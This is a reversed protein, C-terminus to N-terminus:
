FMRLAGFVLVGISALAISAALAVTLKTGTPIVAPTVVAPTTAPAPAAHRIRAPSPKRVVAVPSTEPSVQLALDTELAPRTRLSPAPGVPRPLTRTARRPSPGNVPLDDWNSSAGEELIGIAGQHPQTQAAPKPKPVPFNIPNDLPKKEDVFQFGAVTGSLAEHPDSPRPSTRKMITGPPAPQLPGRHFAVKIKGLRLVDGDALAARTLSHGHRRTGNKSGLDLVIWGQATKEIRCHRRSLQIDRVSVDCEPSRGITTADRIARREIEEGDSTLIIYAM